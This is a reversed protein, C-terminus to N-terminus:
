QLFRRHSSPGPNRHHSDQGRGPRSPLTRQPGRSHPPPPRAQHFREQLLRRRSKAKRTSSRSSSPPPLPRRKKRAIELPTDPSFSTFPEVMRDVRVAGRALLVTTATDFPSSIIAVGASKAARQIGEFVRLGGTIIIARVGSEIARFQIDERDGVFLVINGAPYRQLRQLFSDASMAGVMLLQEVPENSLEGTVLAGGFTEVIGALSAVIVRANAAEERAPFLHHNLKFASLLGLCRHQEDIVPLGRLQKEATLQIADYVTADARVSIPDRQM